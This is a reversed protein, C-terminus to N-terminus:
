TRKTFTSVQVLADLTRSGPEGKGALKLRKVKIYGPASDVKFLFRVLSETDMKTLHVDVGIEEYEPDNGGSARPKMSEIRDGLGEESAIRELTGMVKDVSAESIQAEVAHLAADLGRYEVAMRRLDEMSKEMREISAQRGAMRERVGGVAGWLVLLGLLGAGGALMLRERRSLGGLWERLRNM